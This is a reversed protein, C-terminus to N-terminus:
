YRRRNKWDAPGRGVPVLADMVKIVTQLPVTVPAGDMIAKADREIPLRKRLRVSGKKDLPSGLLDIVRGLLEDDVGVDM